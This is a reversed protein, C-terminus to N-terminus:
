RILIYLTGLLVIAFFSIIRGFFLSRSTMLIKGRMILIMLYPYVAIFHRFTFTTISIVIIHIWYIIVIKDLKRMGNLANSYNTLQWIVGGSVLVAWFTHINNFIKLFNLIQAPFPSVLAYVMRLFIGFPFLDASFVFNSLGGESLVSRYESYGYIRLFLIRLFDLQWFLILTIISFFIIRLFTKMSITTNRLMITIVITIINFFISEYRIYFAIYVLISSIIFCWIYSSFVIGISKQKSFTLIKMGNNGSVRNSSNHPFFLSDWLFLISFQIFALITDRFVHVSIYICNPFLVIAYLVFLGNKEGCNEHKMVYRMAMIGTSLLLYMNLLRLMITHYGGFPKTLIDLWALLLIFGKSNNGGHLYFDMQWPFRYNSSLIQPLAIQEFNYDDDGYQMYPLGSDNLYGYYTILMAAVLLLLIISINLKIKFSLNKMVNILLFYGLLSTILIGANDFLLSLVAGILLSTFGVVSFFM